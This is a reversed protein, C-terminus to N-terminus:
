PAKNLALSLSPRYLPGYSDTKIEYSLLEEQSHTLGPNKDIARTIGIGVMSAAQIGHYANARPLQSLSLGTQPAPQLSSDHLAVGNSRPLSVEERQWTFLWLGQTTPLRKTPRTALDAM